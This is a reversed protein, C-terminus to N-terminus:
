HLPTNQSESTNDDNDSSVVYLINEGDNFPVDSFAFSGQGDATTEEVTSGNPFTVNQTARAM